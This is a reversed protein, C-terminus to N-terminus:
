GGGKVRRRTTAMLVESSVVIARDGSGQSFKVLWDGSPLKTCLLPEGIEVNWGGCGSELPGSLPLHACRVEREGDAEEVNEIARRFAKLDSDIVPDDGSVYQGENKEDMSAEKLLAEPGVSDITLSDMM